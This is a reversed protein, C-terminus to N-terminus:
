RGLSQDREARVSVVLRRERCIVCEAYTCLVRGSGILERITKLADYRDVGLHSALCQECVARHQLTLLFATMTTAAESLTMAGLTRRDCCQPRKVERQVSGWLRGDRRGLTGRESTFAACCRM